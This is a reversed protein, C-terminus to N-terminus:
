GKKSRRSYAWLERTVHAKLTQLARSQGYTWQNALASGKTITNLRTKIGLTLWSANRRRWTRSRKRTKGRQQWSRTRRGLRWGRPGLTLRRWIKTKSSQWRKILCIRTRRVLRSILWLKQLGKWRRSCNVSQSTGIVKKTLRAVTWWRSISRENRRIIRGCNICSIIPRGWASRKKGKYSKTSKIIVKKPKKLSRNTSKSRKSLCTMRGKSREKNRPSSRLKSCGPLTWRRTLNRASTWWKKPLIMKWRLNLMTFERGKRSKYSWTSEYRM